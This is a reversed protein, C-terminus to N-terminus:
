WIVMHQCSAIKCNQECHLELKSRILTLKKKLYGKLCLYIQMVPSLSHSSFFFHFHLHLPLNHLPFSFLVFLFNCWFTHVLVQFQGGCRQVGPFDWIYKLLFTYILFPKRVEPLVMKKWLSYNRQLEQERLDLFHVFYQIFNSWAFHKCLYM